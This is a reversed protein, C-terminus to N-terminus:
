EEKAMRDRIGLVDLRAKVARLLVEMTVSSAGYQVEILHDVLDDIEVLRSTLEEKTM